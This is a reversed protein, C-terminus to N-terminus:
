WPTMHYLNETYLLVMIAFPVHICTYSNITAASIYTFWSLNVKIYCFVNIACPIFNGKYLLFSHHCMSNIPFWSIVHYINVKIYCFVTIACPIHICTGKYLLLDHRCMIYIKMIYCFVMIFKGKYLLFGHHCM